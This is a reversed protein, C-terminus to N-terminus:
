TDHLRDRGHWPWACHYGPRANDWKTHKTLDIRTYWRCFPPDQFSRGHMNGAGGPECATTKSPTLSLHKIRAGILEDDGHQHRTQLRGRLNLPRATSQWLMQMAEWVPKAWQKRKACEAAAGFEPPVFRNALMNLYMSAERDGTGLGETGAVKRDQQLVISKQARQSPYHM